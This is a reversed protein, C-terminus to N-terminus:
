GVTGAHLINPLPSNVQGLANATTPAAPGPDFMSVPALAGSGPAASDFITAPALAGGGPTASDFMAAPALVPAFVGPGPGTPYATYGPANGVDLFGSFVGNHMNAYRIQGGANEMVVDAFGDGSVDEVASVKWGPTTTIVHWGSFVGGSM